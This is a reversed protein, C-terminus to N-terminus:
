LDFDDNEKIVFDFEAEADTKESKDAIKKGARNLSIKGERNLSIQGMDNMDPMKMRPQLNEDTDEEGVPLVMGEPVYRKPEAAKYGNIEEKGKMRYTENMEMSQDEKLTEKAEEEFLDGYNDKKVPTIMEAIGGGALVAYFFTVIRQGNMMTPGMFPTIGTVLLMLLMWPTIHDEKRNRLFGICGTFMVLGILLYLIRYETYVSFFEIKNLSRFYIQLWNELAMQIFNLGSEQTLMLIFGSAAGGFILLLKRLVSFPTTNKLFFASFLLGFIVSTGADLYLMLGTIIGLLMYWFGWIWGSYKREQLGKLFLIILLLEIFFLLYFLTVIDLKGTQNLYLPMFCQATVTLFAPIYGMAVRIVMYLALFLMLQLIMQFVVAAAPTNGTFILVTRLMSEYLFTLNNTQSIASGKASIEAAEYLSANELIQYHGESLIQLRVGAATCFMLIVALVDFFRVMFGIRIKEAYHDSLKGCLFSFVAAGALTLASFGATFAIKHELPFLGSFYSFMAVLLINYATYVAWIIYGPWTKKWAM